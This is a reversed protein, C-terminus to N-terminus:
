LDRNILQILKNKLKDPNTLAYQFAFATINVPEKGNYVYLGSGSVQFKEVIAENGPEDYNIEIFAVKPNEKYKTELLTQSVNGVAKCTECRRVGHFYYVEIKDVKQTDDIKSQNNDSQALNNASATFVFILVFLFSAIKKM